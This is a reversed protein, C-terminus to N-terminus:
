CLTCQLYLAGELAGDEGVVDRLVDSAPGVASPPAVPYCGGGTSTVSAAQTRHHSNPFNANPLRAWTRGASSKLERVAETERLFKRSIPKVSVSISSM